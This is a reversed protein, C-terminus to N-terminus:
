AKALSRSRRSAPAAMRAPRAALRRVVSASTLEALAHKGIWRATADASAALRRATAVAADNLARNRKGIGRLAMDVAKKVFHREDTATREILALGRVFADDPADRDHVTLGWLLAFAARRVFEERRKAWQEVKRWAHATRDFLHFCAGDCVAWSDFNGAWADMQAPTVLAPDDVFTALMRAEYIGTDWLALALAHDRGVRRGLAKIDAMAVGLAHDSPINFRAMGDRTAKTAKRRLAALASEVDAKAAAAGRTRAAATGGRPAAKAAKTGARAM